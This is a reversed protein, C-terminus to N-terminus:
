EEKFGGPADYFSQIMGQAVGVNNSRGIITSDSIALPPTPVMLKNFDLLLELTNYEDLETKLSQGIRLNIPLFGREGSETYAIKGGINSMNTGFAYVFEKTAIKIDENLYYFSVDAAGTLGASSGASGLGQTLNSYIFKGTLGLSFRNGMKRAYGGEVVFENPNATNLFNGYNDTFDISGLSFYRLSVGVASNNDIKKFGSLYALYIDDVLERLWPTYSLSFGMDEELYAMKAANWHLSNVDPSSAVGADGLASGRSDPSILLLPVSPTIVNLDLQGALEGTSISTQASLAGWGLSLSFAVVIVKYYFNKKM